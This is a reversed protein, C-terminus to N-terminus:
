LYKGGQFRGSFNAARNLLEKRQSNSIRGGVKMDKEWDFARKSPDDEEDEVGGSGAKVGWKNRSGDVGKGAAAARGAARAAQHEEVLSRGRTQEMYSRIRAEDAKGNSRSSSSGSSKSTGPAEARASPGGAAAAAAAPDERGLVANALRRAKEEPTETWISSVGAPKAETAARPGSAFKRARLKTPDAARYGSSTPPALMWDDRKPAAPTPEPASAPTTPGSAPGATRSSASAGPLAPGWDDDEDDSTEPDPGTPPRESLDAPPPAPGFVRKPPPPAPGTADDDSDDHLPIEDNNTPMTTSPLSPGISRKGSTPATGSAGVPPLSPGIAPAPRLAGTRDSDETGAQPASPGFDDDSNDELPIEDDNDRRSTKTPPSGSDADDEPTRKRKQLHPPLQPGISAM